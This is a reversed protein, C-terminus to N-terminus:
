EQTLYDTLIFILYKNTRNYSTKTLVNWSLTRTYLTNYKHMDAGNYSALHELFM